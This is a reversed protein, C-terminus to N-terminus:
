APLCINFIEKYETDVHVFSAERDFHNRNRVTEADMQGMGKVSCVVNAFHKPLEDVICSETAAGPPTPANGGIKIRGM